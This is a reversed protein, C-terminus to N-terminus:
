KVQTGLANYAKGNRFILLQGHEIKKEADSTVAGINEVNSTATGNYVIHMPVGYSNVANVEIYLNGNENKVEVTGGVMFYLPAVLNGQANQKAYFSPYPSNEVAGVSALVTMADLSKSITYLGPQITIADDYEEVIFYLACLDSGDAASIEMYAANDNDYTELLVNDLANYTRDIAGKTADYDLYENYKSIMTVEYQVADAAIITAVVNMDGNEAVTVNMTCKEVSFAVAKGGINKYV